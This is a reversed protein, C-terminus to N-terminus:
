LIVLDGSLRYTQGTTTKFVVEKLGYKLTCLNGSGSLIQVGKLTNQDWELSVEFGGRALLGMVSGKSWQAPLAPLLEIKGTQSQLLMEAIGACGGFNGDIQFPPHNDFLNPLTSKRLLALINQYANDGEKLRAYFNIIWARSWGTHGGGHKLRHEITQKAAKMYEPSKEFNFRHGPYLAFLHSIHRHGPEAEKYIERWEMIRGDAIKVPSLNERLETLKKRFDIDTKLLRSAKICNTFLEYIIEQDMAPGMTMSVHDGDKTIYTNEPSISPGSVLLDTLPDRVLFDTFFLAAEKMIPWARNKLFKMDGTFLYHEWYQRVLWAGGTPWMGWQPSGIPSTPFWVDTTHHVVFGKCGYLTQATKKGNPVLQDVFDFYPKHCEPLNTVGAPWYNMQLNINTHYDSNWPPTLGECWIGQLNAPLSGQRSSSILLYRGFQFYLSILSQDEKGKKLINLREDTPLLDQPSAGLNIQVRSFLKQYDTKHTQLLNKYSKKEVAMLRNICIAYPDEGRYDTAGVILLVVEDANEVQLSNTERLLTGGANLVKVWTEMKVGKGGAVHEAMRIYDEKVEVDAHNGPRSLRINLNVSLPHDGEIKVVLVQDPYSSFVERTYKVEGATYQIRVVGTNLDLERRYNNIEGNPDFDLWLNGLTQYTNTGLPLRPSLLHQKALEQAEVIRNDFLAERIEPLYKLGDPRNTISDRHTWVTEENLQIREQVVKGFVMAGLSGNGVPLAETWKEAPQRFWIKLTSDDQEQAGAFFPFLIVMFFFVRQKM